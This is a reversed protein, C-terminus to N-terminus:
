AFKSNSSSFSLLLSDTDSVLISSVEGPRLDVLSSSLVAEPGVLDGPCAEVNGLVPLFDDDSLAFENSRLDTSLGSIIFTGYLLGTFFLVFYICKVFYSSSPKISTSPHTSLKGGVLFPMGFSRISGSATSLSTLTNDKSLNKYCVCVVQISFSLKQAFPNPKM